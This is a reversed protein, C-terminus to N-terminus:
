AKLLKNTIEESFKDVETKLSQRAKDSAEKLETKAKDLIKSAEEQAKSFIEKQANAGDTRCSEFIEKAKARSNILDKNLNSILEDRKATMNKASSLNNNITDSREKFLKLIPKFLIINLLILLIIFNALLYFFSKDLELM